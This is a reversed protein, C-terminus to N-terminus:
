VERGTDFLSDQDEMYEEILWGGDDILVQLATEQNTFIRETLGNQDINGATIFKGADDFVRYSLMESSFGLANNNVLHSLDFQQSFLPLDPSITNEPKQFNPLCPSGSAPGTLETLSAKFAMTAPGHVQVNGGEINIYAGGASLKLHEPAAITISGQTSIIHVDKAANIHTHGSQSQQSVKGQAAHLKIGTEQNPKNPDTALGQTFLHIGDKVTYHQQSQSNISLDHEAVMSSTHGASLIANTATAAIIGAPSSIQLQPESYTDIYHETNGAPSRESIVAIGHQQQTYAALQDAKPQPHKQQNISPHHTTAVEALSLTLESQTHQLQKALNSDMQMGNIPLKDSSILLGNGSRISVSHPTKLELGHGVAHQRQNDSQHYLHGLNLESSGKLEPGSQNTSSNVQTHQQLSLRSQGATDDFVLQNYGGEGTQSHSISQSKIGSLSAPHQHSGQDGNFWAAANATATPATNNIKNYQANSQGQGNYVSAIVIPRDIDGEIFDVIVEQGVRPLQVSGWNDSATPALNALVRVWTGNHSDGAANSHGEPYPHELRNHSSSGRQWHYQIKIRHDRDTYIQGQGQSALANGVVIATQQGQVTPKPHLKFGHGDLTQSRYTTSQPILSLTNRYRGEVLEPRVTNNDSNNAKTAQASLLNNHAIHHVATILYTQAESSTNHNTNGDNANQTDPNIHGDLYDMLTFRTGPAATRATGKATFQHRQTRIGDLAINATREAQAINSYAYQGPNDKLTLIQNLQQQAALASPSSDIVEMTVMKKARYDWSTTTIQHTALRHHEQWQDISDESLVTGSQTYRIKAQANDTFADNHDAIVLTHQGLNPSNLDAQHTFWYYLGEESMLRHIFDLDTEQYQTTLSRKPYVSANSLNFQWAPMYAGEGTGDKFIAELIEIVTMDQYIASDRRYRLLSLWPEVTLRYRTLGGDSEMRQFQTIHGHLPRLEDRSQATLLEILVPQGLAPSLPIDSQHSVAIISFRYGSVQDHNDAGQSIVELGELYEPTLTDPGYQADLPTHLRLLRDTQQSAMLAQAIQALDLNALNTLTPEM